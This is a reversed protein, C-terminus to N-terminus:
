RPTPSGVLAVGWPKLVRSRGSVVAGTLLDQAPRRRPLDLGSLKDSLNVAVLTWRRGLRRTFCFVPGPGACGSVHRGRSWEPRQTRLATLRRYFSLLSDPSAAEEEVSVGDHSRNARDTWWPDGSRYWIASGQAELDATWRFAERMPIQAGDSGQGKLERGRM